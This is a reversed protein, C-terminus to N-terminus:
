TAVRTMELREADSFVTGLVGSGCATDGSSLQAEPASEARQRLVQRKDTSRDAPRATLVGRLLGLGRRGWRELLRAAESCAM